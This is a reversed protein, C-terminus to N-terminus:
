GPRRAANLALGLLTVGSLVANRLLPETTDLSAAGGCGCPQGAEPPSVVLAVSFGALLVLTTLLGTRVLGAFVLVAALAECAAVLAILPTPFQDAWSAPASPDPEATLQILKGVGAYAWFLALGWALVLGVLRLQIPRM